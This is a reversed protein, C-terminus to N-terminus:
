RFLDNLKERTPYNVLVGKRPGHFVFMSGAALASANAQSVAAKFDDLKGAGGMAVVPIKVTASVKGILQLDYGAMTGDQTVSQIIIEGAGSKEM